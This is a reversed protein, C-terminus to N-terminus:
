SLAKVSKRKMLRGVCQTSGLDILMVQHASLHRHLEEPSEGDLMAFNDVENHAEDYKSEQISANGIFLNMLADWAEKASTISRVFVKDKESLSM